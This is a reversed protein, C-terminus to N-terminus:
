EKLNVIKSSYIINAFMKEFIHKSRCFTNNVYKFERDRSLEGSPREKAKHLM